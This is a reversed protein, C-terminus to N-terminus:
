RAYSRVLIMCSQRLASSVAKIEAEATKDGSAKRAALSDLYAMLEHFAAEEEPNPKNPVKTQINCLRKRLTRM